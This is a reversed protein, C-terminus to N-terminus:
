AEPQERHGGHQQGGEYNWHDPGPTVAYRRPATDDERPGELEDRVKKATMKNAYTPPLLTDTTKDRIQFLKM